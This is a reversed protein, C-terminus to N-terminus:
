AGGSKSIHSVKANVDAVAADIAAQDDTATTVVKCDGDHISQSADVIARKEDLVEQLDYSGFEISFPESRNWRVILTHYRRPKPM